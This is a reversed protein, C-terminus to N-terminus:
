NAKKLSKVDIGLRNMMSYLTSRNKLGMMETTKSINNDCKDITYFIIEREIEAQLTKYANAKNDSHIYRDVSEMLNSSVKREPSFPLFRRIDTLKHKSEGKLVIILFLATAIPGLGAANIQFGLLKLGLAIAIVLMVPALALLSYLCRVSELETAASTYRYLLAAVNISFAIFLYLGFLWYHSGTTATIAYGISYNGAVISDTFLVLLALVSAIFLSLVTAYFRDLRSVTLGHLLMYM